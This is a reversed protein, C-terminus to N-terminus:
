SLSQWWAGPSATFGRYLVQNLLAIDRRILLPTGLLLKKLKYRPRNPFGCTNPTSDGGDVEHRRLSSKASPPSGLFIKKKGGRGGLRGPGSFFLPTSEM